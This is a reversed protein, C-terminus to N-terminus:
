KICPSPKPHKCVSSMEPCLISPKGKKRFFVRRQLLTETAEDDGGVALLQSMKRNQGNQGIGDFFVAAVDSGGSNTVHIKRHLVVGQAQGQQKIDALSLIRIIISCVIVHM